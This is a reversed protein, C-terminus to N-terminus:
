FSITKLLDIIKTYKVRPFKKYLKAIMEDKKRTLNEGEYSLILHAMEEAVIFIISLPSLDGSFTKAFGHGRMIGHHQLIIVDSGLPAVSFKQVVDSALKAHKMVLDNEDATLYGDLFDESHIKVLKDDTLFIDHFFSVFALKEKVENSGWELRSVIHNCIYIILQVHKYHFSAQNKLLERLLASVKLNQKAIEMCTKIASITLLKVSMEIEAPLKRVEDKVIQLSKDTLGIKQNPNIKTDILVANMSNTVFDVMKLRDKALIFVQEHGSELISSFDNAAISDGATFKLIYDSNDLLYIDCPASEIHLCYHADIPFLHPVIKEVMKQATVNLIIASTRLLDKLEARPLVKIHSSKPLKAKEGIVILPVTKNKKKYFEFVLDATRENEILDPCIILDIGPHHEMLIKSENFDTKVIVDTGIYVTLNLKLMECFHSQNHIILTQSM